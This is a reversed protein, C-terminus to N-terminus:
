SDRPSPSTYLLCGKLHVFAADTIETCDSMDLTHIGKLHIFAADTILECGRMDLTHIGKLYKFCNNTVSKGLKINSEKYEDNLWWLFVEIDSELFIIIKNDYYMKRPIFSLANKKKGIDVDAGSGTNDILDNDTRRRKFSSM